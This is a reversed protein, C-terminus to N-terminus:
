RCMKSDCFKVNIWIYSKKVHFIKSSIDPVLIYYRKETCTKDYNKTLLLEKWISPICQIIREYLNKNPRNHELLFEICIEEFPKFEKSYDDWIDCVKM